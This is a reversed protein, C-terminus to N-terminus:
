YLKRAEETIAEKIRDEIAELEGMKRNFRPILDLTVSEGGLYRQRHESRIAGLDARLKLLDSFPPQAGPVYIRVLMELRQFHSTREAKGRKIAMKNVRNLDIKGQFLPVYPLYYVGLRNCYETCAIYAEELKARLLDRRQARRNLTHTVVTAVVGSFLLSALPVVLVQALTLPEPRM